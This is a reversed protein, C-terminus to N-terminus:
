FGAKTGVIAAVFGLAIFFAAYLWASFPIKESGPAYLGKPEFWSGAARKRLPLTGTSLTSQSGFSNQDTYSSQKM